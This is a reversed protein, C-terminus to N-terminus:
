FISEFELPVIDTYLLAFQSNIQRNDHYHGFYWKKFECKESVEQLYDTLIDKKYSLNLLTQINTPCCHSVIYDIRYNAKGLNKIGNEM